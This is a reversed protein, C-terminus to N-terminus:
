YDKVSALASAAMKKAKSVCRALGCFKASTFAALRTQPRDVFFFSCFVRRAKDKESRPNALYGWFFEFIL